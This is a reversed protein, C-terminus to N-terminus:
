CTRPLNRPIRRAIRNTASSSRSRASYMARRRSVPPENQGLSQATDSREPQESPCRYTVVRRQADLAGQLVYAAAEGIRATGGPVPEIPSPKLSM